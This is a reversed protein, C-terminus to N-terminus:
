ARKNIEDLLTLIKKPSIKYLKRLGNIVKATPNTSNGKELDWLHVKHCGIKDAAKQLSIGMELRKRLIFQGFPQKPDFGAHPGSSISKLDM